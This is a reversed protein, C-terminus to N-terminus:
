HLPSIFVSNSFYRDSLSTVSVDSFIHFVSHMTHFIIWLGSGSHTVLSHHMFTLPNNLPCHLHRQGVLMILCSGYQHQGTFSCCCKM